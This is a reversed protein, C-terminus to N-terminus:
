TTSVLEVAKSNLTATFGKGVFRLPSMDTARIKQGTAENAREMVAMTHDLTFDDADSQFMVIYRGRIPKTHLGSELVSEFSQASVEDMGKRGFKREVANEMRDLLRYLESDYNTSDWGESFVSRYYEQVNVIHSTDDETDAQDSYHRRSYHYHAASRKVIHEWHEPSSAKEISSAWDALPSGEAATYCQHHLCLLVMM